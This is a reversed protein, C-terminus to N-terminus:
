PIRSSGRQAVKITGISEPTATGPAYDYVIRTQFNMVFADPIAFTGPVLWTIYLENHGIPLAVYNDPGFRCM